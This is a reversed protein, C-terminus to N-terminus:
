RHKLIIKPKWCEKATQGDGMQMEVVAPLPESESASPSSKSHYKTFVITIAPKTREEEKVETTSHNHIEAGRIGTAGAPDTFM